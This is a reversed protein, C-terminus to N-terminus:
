AILCQHCVDSAVKKIRPQRRNWRTVRAADLEVVRLNQLLGALARFIQAREFGLLRHSAQSNGYFQLVVM